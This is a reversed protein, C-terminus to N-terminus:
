PKAMAENPKVFNNVKQQDQELNPQNYYNKWHKKFTGSQNHAYEPTNM